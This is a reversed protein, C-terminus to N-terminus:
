SLDAAIRNHHQIILLSTTSIKFLKCYLVLGYQVCGFMPGLIKFLSSHAGWWRSWVGGGRAVRKNTWTSRVRRWGFWNCGSLRCCGRRRSWLSNPYTSLTPTTAAMNCDNESPVNKITNYQITYNDSCTILCEIWYNWITRNYHFLSRQKHLSWYRM